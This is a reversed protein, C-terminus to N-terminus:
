KLLVMPRSTDVGDARLRYHYVGSAVKRGADDTGNWEVRYPGSSRTGDVLTKVKRGSADYVSLEVPGYRALDFSIVTKPNFPNPANGKLQTRAVLPAEDTSTVRPLIWGQDEFLARTLDVDSSLNGNIAPEMLLNPSASVDWHSVSSGPRLPDPTYVLARATAVSAGALLSPDPAISGTLGNGLEARIVAGDELSLSIVPITIPETPTGGMQIPGDGAVNNVIIVGVAGANQANLAKQAFACSGRDILAIAGNLEAGNVAPNCGESALTTGDDIEVIPGSVSVSQISPGFSATGIEKYSGAVSAPASIQLTPLNDLVVPAEFGVAEGTWVVQRDTIASAARQANSMATWALGQSEDFLFRSYIDPLGQFFEGTGDDVFSAFGLGHGIEHLVVPLLEIAGGENGDLGYYWGTGGLCAPDGNLLSNFRARIDGTTPGLDEGALKDALASHYWTAPFESGTFDRFIQLPGASGLTASTADCFQEEFTADVVITVDSDLIQGWIDAAFEFVNLRQEGITTGPNGGVPTAPTTDNFGEDPANLNNIVINAASAPLAAALAVAATAILLRAKM